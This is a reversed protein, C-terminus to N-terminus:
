VFSMELVGFSAMQCGQHNVMGPGDGCMPTGVYPQISNACGFQAQQSNPMYTVACWDQIGRGCQQNQVAGQYGYQYQTGLLYQGAYCYGNSM